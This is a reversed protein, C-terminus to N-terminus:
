KLCSYKLKAFVKHLVAWFVNLRYKISILLNQQNNFYSLIILNTLRIIFNRIAYNIFTTQLIM